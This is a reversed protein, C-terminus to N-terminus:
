ATIYTTLNKTMSKIWKRNIIIMVILAPIFRIIQHIQIATSVATGSEMINAALFQFINTIMILHQRSGDPIQRIANHAILVLDRDQTTPITPQMLILSTVVLVIPQFIQIIARWM